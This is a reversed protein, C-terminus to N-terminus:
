ASDITLQEEFPNTGDILIDAHEEPHDRKMYEDEEQVWRAWMRNLEDIAIGKNADRELGRKWCLEKPADVFISLSICNRLERRSSSVGELIMVPTVPQAVAPEPHHTPWWKSRPYDLTTAGTKIPEFVLEIVLPWWDFQNEWSAFDDTRVISASLKGSLWKALTSKGAGGRGDIAIFTTNKVKPRTSALIRRLNIKSPGVQPSQSM